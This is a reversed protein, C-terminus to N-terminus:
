PRPYKLEPLADKVTNPTSKAPAEYPLAKLFAVLDDLEGPKLHSTVGHKDEKNHTTLVDHLTKARGDHLYSANRYAGLLTPTDYKPGMKERKDGGTGVDHRLFPKELRSDTYYSGTHCSACNTKADLFLKRGREGAETLKGPAAIHPSLRVPFSNTYIAMADLDKSLGACQQDLAVTDFEKGMKLRKDSLGYGQMLKGRITYEFDQSEDRDASWHLPHTHAL